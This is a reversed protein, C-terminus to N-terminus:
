RGSRRYVYEDCGSGLIGAVHVKTPHVAIPEFGLTQMHNRVEEPTTSEYPFGGLWDHIDHDVNMGRTLDGKSLGRGSLLLGSHYALKYTTALARQVARPARMYARKEVKWFGCLPTKRYLAFAFIGGPAVMRAADDIARWMAGTHHLVGWSYVVDFQGLDDPSLDFVSKRDVSWTKDAAFGSLVRRTTEVSNEDIDIAHVRKAGLALAAASFLGSGSGIDLFTRGEIEPVLRRVNEAAADVRQKDLLKSFDYWNAGFDFHASRDTLDSASAAM